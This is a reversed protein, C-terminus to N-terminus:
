GSCAGEHLDKDASYHQAPSINQDVTKTERPQNTCRGLLIHGETSISKCKVLLSGSDQQRDDKQQLHQSVDYRRSSASVRAEAELLM